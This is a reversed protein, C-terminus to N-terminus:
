SLCYFHSNSCQQNTIALLLGYVITDFLWLQFGLLAGCDHIHMISKNHCYKKNVCKFHLYDVVSISDQKTLFSRVTCM